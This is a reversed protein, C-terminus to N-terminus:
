SERFELVLRVNVQFYWILLIGFYTFPSFFTSVVSSCLLAMALHLFFITINPFIYFSTYFDCSCRSFFVVFPHIYTFTIVHPSFRHFYSVLFSLSLSLLSLFISFSFPSLLSVCTYLHLFSIYLVGSIAMNLFFHFSTHFYISEHLFFSILPHICSISKPLFSIFLHMFSFSKM